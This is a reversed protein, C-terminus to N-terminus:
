EERHYVLKLCQNCAVIYDSDVYSNTRILMENLAIGLKEVEKLDVFMMLRGEEPMVLFCLM